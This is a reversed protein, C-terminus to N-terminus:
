LDNDYLLCEFRIYQKLYHDFILYKFLIFFENKLPSKDKKFIQINYHKNFLLIIFHKKLM